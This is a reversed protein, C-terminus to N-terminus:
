HLGARSRYIRVSQINQEDVLNIRNTRWKKRMGWDGYTSFLSTFQLCRQLPASALTAAAGSPRLALRRAIALQLGTALL